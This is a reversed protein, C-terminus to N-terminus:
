GPVEHHVEIIDTVPVPTIRDRHHGDLRVGCQHPDGHRPPRKGGRDGPAYVLTGGQGDVLTVRCRDRAARRLATHFPDGYREATFAM